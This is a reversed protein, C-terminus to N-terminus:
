PTVACTSGNLTFATPKSNTGNSNANFGVNVTANPAISANWSLNTASVNAGTQTFTANWLQSIAQANPFAWGVTWNNVATTGTNKIDVSAQFGTDWQNVFTYTV